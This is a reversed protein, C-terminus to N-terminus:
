DKKCSNMTNYTFGISLRYERDLSNEDLTSVYNGIATDVADDKDVWKWFVSIAKTQGAEITITENKATMDIVKSTDGRYGLRTTTNNHLIEYIDNKGDVYSGMYYYPGQAHKIIYGMNLCKGDSVCITEENLLLTNITIDYKSENTIDLVYSGYAGPYIIKDKGYKTSYEENHFLPIDVVYLTHNEEKEKTEDSYVAYISLHNTITIPSNILETSGASLSYGKFTYVLCENDETIKYPTDYMSLDVLINGSADKITKNELDVIDGSSLFFKLEKEFDNFEGGNASLTFTYKETVTLDVNLTKILDGFAYLKANISTKGASIAKLLFGLSTPGNLESNYTLKAINENNSIVDLYISKDNVSTIRVGGKIPTAEVDGVFINTNLVLGRTSSEESLVMEYSNKYTTLYISSVDPKKRTLTFTYTKDGHISDKVTITVVKTESYNLSINEIDNKSVIKGDIKYIMESNDTSKPFM